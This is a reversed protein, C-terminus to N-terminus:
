APRVPVPLQALRDTLGVVNFLQVPEAKGKLHMPEVAVLETFPRVVAAVAETIMLRHEGRAVSECRQATNVTDGIVTYEKREASGVPGAILEGSHLGVGLQLTPLGRAELSANVVDMAEQMEFAAQVALRETPVGALPGERIADPVGWVAMIADGMFKDIVGGWRTIVPALTELSENLVAVVVEAETRESLSTFGRVDSFMVTAHLRRGTSVAKDEAILREAVAPDVYQRFTSKIRERQALGDAMEDVAAALVGIEDRRDVQTRAQFDGGRILAVARDMRRLPDLISQSIIRSLLMTLATGGVWVLLYGALRQTAGDSLWTGSELALRLSGQEGYLFFLLFPLTGSIALWRMSIRLSASARLLGLILTGLTSFFLLGTLILLTLRLDAQPVQPVLVVVVFAGGLLLALQAGTGLRGLAKHLRGTVLKSLVSAVGGVGRGIAGRFPDLVLWVFSLAAALTLVVFAVQSATLAFQVILVAVAAAVAFALTRRGAEGFSAGSGRWVLVAGVLGMLGLVAGVFAGTWGVAAGYLSSLSLTGSGSRLGERFAVRAEGVEGEDVMLYGMEMNLQANGPEMVLASRMADLAKAPDNMRRYLRTLVLYDSVGKDPRTEVQNLIPVLERVRLEDLLAPVASLVVSDEFASTTGEVFHEIGAGERTCDAIGKYAELDDGEADILTWWLRSAEGCDGSAQAERASARLEPSQAAAFSFFFALIAFM